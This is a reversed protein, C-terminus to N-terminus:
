NKIVRQNDIVIGNMILSAIYMGPALRNLNDVQMNNYGKSITSQKSLLTQGAVNTIRIEANGNESSNFRINLNEVFPNPSAQMVVDAKAQLRVALTKSYTTKGDIDFQKLRYYVISRSQLEASNDKFQYSKNTGNV